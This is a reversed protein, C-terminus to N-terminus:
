CFPTQRMVLFIKKVRIEFLDAVDHFGVVHREGQAVAQTRSRNGIGIVFRLEAFQFCQAFQGFDGPFVVDLHHDLPGAVHRHVQNVLVHGLLQFDAVLRREIGEARQCRVDSGAVIMDSASDARRHDAPVAGRHKAIHRGFFM